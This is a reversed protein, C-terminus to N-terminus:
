GGELRRIEAELSAIEAEIRQPEAPDDPQKRANALRLRLKQIKERLLSIRKKDKM